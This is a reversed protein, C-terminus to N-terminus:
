KTLLHDLGGAKIGEVFAGMEAGTFVHPAKSPNKSDRVFWLGQSRAVEVCDGSNSLRFYDADTVLALDYTVEQGHHDKISEQM